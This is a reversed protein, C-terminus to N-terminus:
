AGDGTTLVAFIKGGAQTDIHQLFRFASDIRTPVSPAGHPVILFPETGAPTIVKPSGSITSATLAVSGSSAVSFRIYSFDTAAAGVLTFSVFKGFWESPITIEESTASTPIVAAPITLGSPTSLDFAQQEVSM